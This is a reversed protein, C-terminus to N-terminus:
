KDQAAVPLVLLAAVIVVLWSTRSMRFPVRRRTLMIFRRKLSAGYGLSSAFRPARAPREALYEIAQWMSRAYTDAADPWRSVVAGDCCQEEADRLERRAWWALPLWWYLAVVFLELRRLWHDGRRLHMLEHALISRAEGPGLRPLLGAPLLIVPPGRW